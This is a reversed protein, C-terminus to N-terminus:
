TIAIVCNYNYNRLQQSFNIIETLYSNGSNIVSIKLIILTHMKLNSFYWIIMFQPIFTHICIYTFIYMCMNVRIFVFLKKKNLNLFGKCNLVWTIQLCGTLAYFFFNKVCRTSRVDFRGKTYLEIYPVECKTSEM